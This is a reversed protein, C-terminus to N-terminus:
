SEQNNRLFEVFKEEHKPKIYVVFDIDSYFHYLNYGKDTVKKGECAQYFISKTLGTDGLYEGAMGGGDSVLRIDKYVELKHFKVTELLSSIDKNSAHTYKMVFPEIKEKWFAELKALKEDNKTQLKDAKDHKDERILDACESISNSLDGMGEIYKDFDKELKSYHKQGHNPALVKNRIASIKGTHWSELMDYVDDHYTKNAATAKEKEEFELDAVVSVYIDNIAHEIAKALDIAFGNITDFIVKGDAYIDALMRSQEEPNAKPDTVVVTTVDSKENVDAQLSPYLDAFMADLRQKFTMEAKAIEALVTNFIEKYLEPKSLLISAFATEGNSLVLGFDFTVADLKSQKDFEKVTLDMGADKFVSNIMAEINKADLASAPAEIEGISDDGYYVFLTFDKKGAEEVLEVNAEVLHEVNFMLQTDDHAQSYDLDMCREIYEENEEGPMRTFGADKYVKLIEAPDVKKVLESYNQLTLTKLSAYVDKAMSHSFINLLAQGGSKLINKIEKPAYGFFLDFGKKSFSSMDLSWKKNGGPVCQKMWLAAEHMMEDFDEGKDKCIVRYRDAVKQVDTESSVKAEVLAQLFVEFAKRHKETIGAVGSSSAVQM